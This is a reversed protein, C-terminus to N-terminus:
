LRKWCIELYTVNNESDVIAYLMKKKTSHSVRNKGTLDLIKFQDKELVPEVLWLSHDDGIKIGKDYVRFKFGYKLGSKINYGKSKLDKYVNYDKIAINKRYLIEKFSVNREKNPRFKSFISNLDKEFVDIKDKELLYLVEFVELEYLGNNKNGFGKTSLSQYSKEDILFLDNVIEIRVRNGM